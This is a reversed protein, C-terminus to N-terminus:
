QEIVLHMEMGSGHRARAARIKRDREDLRAEKEVLKRMRLAAEVIQRLERNDIKLFPAGNRSTSEYKKLATAYLKTFIVNLERPSFSKADSWGLIFGRVFAVCVPNISDDSTKTKVPREAKTAAKIAQKLEQPRFGLEGTKVYREMVAAFLSGRITKLQGSSYKCRDQWGADWADLFTIVLSDKEALREKPQTM